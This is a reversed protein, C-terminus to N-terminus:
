ANDRVCLYRVLGRGQNVGKLPKEQGSHTPPAPDAWGGSEAVDLTQIPSANAVKWNRLLM